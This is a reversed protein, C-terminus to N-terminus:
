RKKEKGLAYRMVSCHMGYGNFMGQAAAMGISYTKVILAPNVLEWSSWRLRAVARLSLLWSIVHGYRLCNTGDDVHADQTIAELEREQCYTGKFELGRVQFTVHNAGLQVVHVVATLKDNVLLFVDGTTVDSLRGRSIDDFLTSQLTRTLHAYFISNLNNLCTAARPPPIPQPPRIPITERITTSITESSVNITENVNSNGGTSSTHNTNSNVHTLIM